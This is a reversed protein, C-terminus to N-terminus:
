PDGARATNPPSWASWATTSRAVGAGALQRALDAARGPGLLLPPAFSAFLAAVDAPAVRLSGPLRTRVIEAGYGAARHQEHRDALLRGNEEVLRATRGAPSLHM